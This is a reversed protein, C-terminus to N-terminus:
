LGIQRHIIREGTPSIEIKLSLTFLDKPLKIKEPWEVFVIASRLKWEHPDFPLAHHEELRYADVHVVLRAPHTHSKPIEYEVLIPYTPSVVPEEYGWEKLISRVLATKGAGLDGFLAVGDGPKLEAALTKAYEDLDRLSQIQTASRTV